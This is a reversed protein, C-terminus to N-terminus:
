KGQGLAIAMHRVIGDPATALAQWTSAPRSSASQEMALCLWEVGVPDQAQSAAKLFAASQSEPLPGAEARLKALMASLKKKGEIIGKLIAIGQLDTEVVRRKMANEFIREFLRVRSYVELMRPVADADGLRYLATACEVITSGEKRAFVSPAPEDEVAQSGCAREARVLLERILPIAKPNGLRGLGEIAADKTPEKQVAEMLVDYGAPDRSAGLLIMAAQRGQLDPSFRELSERLKSGWELKAFPLLPVYVSALDVKGGGEPRLVHAFLADATAPTPRECIRRAMDPTVGSGLTFSNMEDETLVPKTSAPAATVIPRAGAAWDIAQGLLKPWDPWDWFPLSGSPPEGTATLACAVVRGKGFAGSVLAPKVGALLQVTSGSRPALTQVFFASPRKAFDFPQKWTAQPAATLALGAPASPIRHEDPFTVPLMEELPTGGYAGRSYAWEGGLLVLGGGHEVFERFVKLREPTLAPADLNAIVIVSYRQLEERTPLHLLQTYPNRYPSRSVYAAQYLLGAEHMAPEWRFYDSWLGEIVLAKPVPSPAWQWAAAQADAAEATPCALMAIVAGLLLSRSRILEMGANISFSM